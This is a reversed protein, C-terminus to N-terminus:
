TTQFKGVDTIPGFMDWQGTTSNVRHASDKDVDNTSMVGNNPPTVMAIQVTNDNWKEPLPVTKFAKAKPDFEAVGHKMIMVLWMMGSMDLELDLEDNM